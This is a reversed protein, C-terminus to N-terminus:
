FFAFTRVEISERPKANKPSTPDNFSTHATFRARGDTVSDYVKFVLVENRTMKPFYYWSHDTNYSVQYTEGVRDPYRRESSILDKSSLSSAECIALPDSEIEKCIPRWAQIVAFRHQLLDNAEDPLVDRVRQPGSWETYDNHVRHVPERLLRQQREKKDGSRITHDFVVVRSAGSTRKILKEVEPFYVSKLENSDYFDQVQTQHDVFNFGHEDLLFKDRLLRGNYLTVTHEEFIGTYRRELNGEEMTENVPKVGTDVSYTLNAQLQKPMLQEMTQQVM